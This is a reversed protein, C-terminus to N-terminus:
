TLDRGTPARVRGARPCRRGKKSEPVRGDQDSARRIDLHGSADIRPYPAELRIAALRGSHESEREEECRNSGLLRHARRVDDDDEG